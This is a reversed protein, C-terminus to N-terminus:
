IHRKSGNENYSGMMDYGHDIKEQPDSDHSPTWYNFGNWENVPLSNYSECEKGCCSIKCILHFGASQTYKNEWKEWRTEVKPLSFCKPCKKIM